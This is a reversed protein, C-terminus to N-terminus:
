DRPSPSTYLLCVSSDSSRAASSPPTADGQEGSSTKPMSAFVYLTWSSPFRCPTISKVLCRAVIFINVQQPAPLIQCFCIDWRLGNNQDWWFKMSARSTTSGFRFVVYLALVNKCGCSFLATRKDSQAVELNVSLFGFSWIKNWASVNGWSKMIPALLPFPILAFYTKRSLVPVPLKRESKGNGVDVNGDSWAM